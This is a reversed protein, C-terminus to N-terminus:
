RLCRGALIGRNVELALAKLDPSKDFLSEDNGEFSESSTSTHAVFRVPLEVKVKQSRM